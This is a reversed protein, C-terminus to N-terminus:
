RCRCEMPGDKAGTMQKPYIRTMVGEKGQLTCSSHCRQGPSGFWETGYLSIAVGAAGLAVIVFAAILDRPVRRKKNLKQQM